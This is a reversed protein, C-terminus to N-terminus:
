EAHSLTGVLERAMCEFGWLFFTSGPPELFLQQLTIKPASNQASSGSYVLGPGERFPGAPSSMAQAHLAYLSELPQKPLKLPWSLPLPWFLM